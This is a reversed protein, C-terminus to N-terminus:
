LELRMLPFEKEERYILFGNKLLFEVPGSPNDASGRRAFTELAKTGRIRLEEIIAQLIRSGLGNKQFEKEPIALCALLVADESPPGSDYNKWGPLHKPPAYQAYAVPKGDLYAIKGCSGFERAVLEVWEKKKEFLASKGKKELEPLEEPSEWYLCYKCSYPHGFWDPADKLNELSLDCIELKM